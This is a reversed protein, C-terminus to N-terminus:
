KKLKVVTEVHFTQPFMDFPQIMDISYGYALIQKVDRALTAPNCSVYIIISPNLRAIMALTKHTCGHRPPNLVMADFDDGGCHKDVDDASGQIYVCGPINNAKANDLAEDIAHKNSDIGLVQAGERACFLSFNGCGCFLDLIKKGKLPQLLNIVLQIMHINQSANVQYFTIPRRKFSMGMIIEKASYNDAPVLAAGNKLLLCSKLVSDCYLSVLVEGTAHTCLVNLESFHRLPNNDKAFLSWCHKLAQNLPPVLLPCKRVPIICHIGRRYYGICPTTSDHIKFSAKSRYYFPAPAPCVPALPPNHFGTIREFCEKIILAKCDLQMSYDIHQLQCGGCESFLNCLPERRHPSPKCITQLSATLYHKKIAEIRAQVTEGPIVDNVFCAISGFHALGHGGHLLKEIFLEVIRGQITALTNKM